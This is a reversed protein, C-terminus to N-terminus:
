GTIRNKIAVALRVDSVNEWNGSLDQKLVRDGFKKHFYAQSEGNNKGANAGRGPAFGLVTRSHENDEILTLLKDTLHFFEPSQWSNCPGRLNATTLQHM